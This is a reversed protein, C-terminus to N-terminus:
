HPRHQEQGRCTKHKCRFGGTRLTPRLEAELWINCCMATRRGAVSGEGRPMEWVSCGLLEQRLSIPSLRAQIRVQGPSQIGM